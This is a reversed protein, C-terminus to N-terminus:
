AFERDPFLVDRGDHLDAYRPEESGGEISDAFAALVQPNEFIAEPRWSELGEIRQAVSPHWDYEQCDTFDRPKINGSTLSYANFFQSNPQAYPDPSFMEDLAGDKFVLGQEQMQEAMWLGAIDALGNDIEGFSNRNDGGGIGHGGAFLMQTLQTPTDPDDDICMPTHEFTSRKEDISVAHFANEVTKGLRTDHFEHGRNFLGSFWFHKPLGLSGVTEFCYLGDISVTNDGNENAHSFEKRLYHGYDSSPSFQDPIEPIGEAGSKETLSRVRKNGFDRYLNFARDVIQERYGDYDASMLVDRSVGKRLAIKDWSVLGVKHIMSALSRASYAGRSHGAIHIEDGEKYNDALHLYAEKISDNLGWGFAGGFIRQFINGTGVGKIYKVKQSHGDEFTELAKSYKAIHTPFKQHRTQWTGDLLIVHKTPKLNESAKSM